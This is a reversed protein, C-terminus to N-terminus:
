QTLVQPRRARRRRANSGNGGLLWARAELVPIRRLRGVKCSPLGKRILRNITCVDVNVLAAFEGTTVMELDELEM